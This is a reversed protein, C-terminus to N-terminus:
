LDRPWNTGIIHGYIHKWYKTHGQGQGQGLESWFNAIEEKGMPVSITTIQLWNLSTQALFVTFLLYIPNEIKSFTHGKVEPWLWVAQGIQNFSQLIM